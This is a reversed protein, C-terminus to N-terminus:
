KYKIIFNVGIQKGHTVNGEGSSGTNGSTGTFTGTVTVSNTSLGVSGTNGATGTFKGTSTTSKIDAGSETTEVEEVNVEHTHYGSWSNVYYNTNYVYSDYDGTTRKNGATEATLSTNYKTSTTVPFSVTPYGNNDKFSADEANYMVDKDKTIVASTTKSPQTDSTDPGGM